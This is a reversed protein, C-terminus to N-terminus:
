SNMARPLRSFWRKLLLNSIQGDADAHLSLIFLLLTNASCCSPKSEKVARLLGDNIAVELCGVDKEVRDTIKWIWNWRRIRGTRIYVTHMICSKLALSDSKPSALIPGDPSSVCTLVRTIPVCPQCSLVVDVAEAHHKHLKQRPASRDVLRPWLLLLLQHFPGLGVQPVAPLQAADHIWLEGTVVREPARPLSSSESQAADAGVWLVAGLHGLNNINELAEHYRYRPDVVTSAGEPRRIENILKLVATRSIIHRIVTKLQSNSFLRYCYTPSARNRDNGNSLQEFRVGLLSIFLSVVFCSNLVALVTYAFYYFLKIIIITKLSSLHRFFVYLFSYSNLDYVPLEDLTAYMTPKWYYIKKQVATHSASNGPCAVPSTWFDRISSASSYRGRSCGCFEQLALAPDATGVIFLEGVTDTTINLEKSCLLTYFNDLSISILLLFSFVASASLNFHDRYIFAYLVITIMTQKKQSFNPRQGSVITWTRLPFILSWPSMLFPFDYDTLDITSIVPPAPCGITLQAPLRCIVKQM